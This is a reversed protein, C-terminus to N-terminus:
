KTDLGSEYAGTIRFSGDINDGLIDVFDEQSMFEKAHQLAEEVSDASVTKAVLLVLRAQIEYNRAKNQQKAM